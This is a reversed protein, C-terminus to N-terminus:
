SAKAARRVYRYASETSAGTVDRLERVAASTRGAQALADIKVAEKAPLSTNRRSDLYAAVALVTTLLALSSAFAARAGQGASGLMFAAALALGAGLLLVHYPRTVLAM